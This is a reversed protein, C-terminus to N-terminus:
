GPPTCGGQLFEPPVKPEPKTDNFNAKLYEFAFKLDEDSVRGAHGKQLGDWRADTRQGIASCGVNHCSACNNLLQDRGPGPPFLDAVSGVAASTPTSSANAASSEATAPPTGQQARENTAAPGSADGCGICFCGGLAVSAALNRGINM